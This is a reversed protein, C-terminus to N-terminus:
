ITITSISNIIYKINNLCLYRADSILHHPFVLRYKVFIVRQYLTHVHMVKQPIRFAQSNGNQFIRITIM